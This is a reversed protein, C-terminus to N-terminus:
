RNISFISYNTKRPVILRNIFIPVILPVLRCEDIHQRSAATDTDVALALSPRLAHRTSTLAQSFALWSLRFGVFIPDHPKSQVATPWPAAQHLESAITV